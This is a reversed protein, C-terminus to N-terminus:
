AAQLMFDVHIADYSFIVKGTETKDLLGCRLLIKIDGHVAKIDREIRRAVERISMEGAGTMNKLIQWRKLSLIKWLQEESEFSIYAGQVQNTEWTMLFRESMKKTSSLGITVENM